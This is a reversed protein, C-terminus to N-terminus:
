CRGSQAPPSCDPQWGGSPPSRAVAILSFAILGMTLIRLQSSARDVSTQAQGQASKAVLEPSLLPSIEQVLKAQSAGSVGAVYILDVRGQKGYLARATRPDFVAFTTGGLSVGSVRAVGTVRFSRAPEGTV